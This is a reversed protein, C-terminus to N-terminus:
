AYETYKRSYDCSFCIYKSCAPVKTQFFCFCFLVKIEYLCIRLGCMMTLPQILLLM